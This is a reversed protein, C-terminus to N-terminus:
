EEPHRFDYIGDRITFRSQCESCKLHSDDEPLLDGKCTPCRFFEGPEAKPTSGTVLSRTFVSPTLQWWNGTLQALQDMWVLLGTPLIKKIVDIRFHSVTLTKQLDFGASNLWSKVTGPHFNYNLEVFEVPEPSFPSWEQRRLLYRLIAKLNHKNAYEL